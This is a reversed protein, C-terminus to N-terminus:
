GITLGPFKNLIELIQKDFIEKQRRYSRYGEVFLLGMIIQFTSIARGLKEL